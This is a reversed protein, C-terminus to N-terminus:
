KHIEASKKFPGVKCCELKETDWVTWYKLKVVNLGQLMGVNKAFVFQHKM